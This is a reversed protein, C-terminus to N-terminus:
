RGLERVQISELYAILSDTGAPNFQFRPMPAHAVTMGGILENALTQTKYRSLITRFVPARPNPSAGESGIAHCSACNLRAIERGDEVLAADSLAAPPAPDDAVGGTPPLKDLQACAGLALFATGAITLVALLRKSM